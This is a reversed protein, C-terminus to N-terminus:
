NVQREIALRWAEPGHEIVVAASAVAESSDIVLDTM